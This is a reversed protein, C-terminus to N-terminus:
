IIESKEINQNEREHICQVSTSMKEWQNKKKLPKICLVNNM